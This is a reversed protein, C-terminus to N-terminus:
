TASLLGVAAIALVLGAMQAGSLHQRQIVRAMVVTVAPYLSAVVAVVVLSARQAALLYGINGILDLIGVGVVAAGAAGTPPALWARRGALAIVVLLATSLGRSAVLPWLGSAQTARALAIFYGGFFVGAGIGYGLGGMSRGPTDGRSVLYIAPLAGAVGLWGLPRPSDGTVVGAVVPLMAGVVAAAPAVVAARERALGTYLLVLGALGFLSAAAGAGLDAGLPVGEGFAVWGLSMVLGILHAWLLTMGAPIRRTAAGGLFDGLGYGIAAVGALLVGM